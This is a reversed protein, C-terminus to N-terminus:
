QAFCFTNQAGDSAIVGDKGGGALPKVTLSRYSAIKSSNSWPAKIEAGDSRADPFINSIGRMGGEKEQSVNLSYHTKGRCMM